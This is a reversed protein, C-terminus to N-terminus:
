LIIAPICMRYLLSNWTSRAMSSTQLRWLDEELFDSTPYKKKAGQSFFLIMIVFKDDDQSPHFSLFKQTPPFKSGKLEM